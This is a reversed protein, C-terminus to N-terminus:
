LCARSKLWRTSRGDTKDFVEDLTKGANLRFLITSGKIGTEESWDAVCKTKGKYTILHNRSYNRNQQKTTAWRCNGPSYGKSNDIRDITLGPQYGSAMAWEYFSHFSEQWEQCVRIGKGGYRSYSKSHPNNCREKMSMWKNHLPTKAMGHSPIFAGKEDRAREM